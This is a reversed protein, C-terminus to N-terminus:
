IIHLPRHAYLDANPTCFGPLSGSTFSASCTHPLINSFTAPVRLLQQPNFLVIKLCISFPSFPLLPLYLRGPISRIPFPVERLPEPIAKGSHTPARRPASLRPFFLSFQGAGGRHASKPPKLLRTDLALSVSWVEYTM